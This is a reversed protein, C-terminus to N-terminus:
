GIQPLFQVIQPNLGLLDAYVYLTPIITTCNNGSIRYSRAEHFYPAYIGTQLNGIFGYEFGKAIHYVHDVLHHSKAKRYFTPDLAKMRTLDEQIYDVLSQPFAGM